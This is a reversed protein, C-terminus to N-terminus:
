YELNIIKQNPQLNYWENGAPIPRQSLYQYKNCCLCLRTKFLPKITPNQKCYSGIIGYKWNHFGVFCLIENFLVTLYKHQAGGRM